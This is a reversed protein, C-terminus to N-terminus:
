VAKQSGEQIALPRFVKRPSRKLSKLSLDTMDGMAKVTLFAADQLAQAHRREVEKVALRKMVDHFTEAM